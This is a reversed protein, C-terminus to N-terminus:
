THDLIWCTEFEVLGDNNPIELSCNMNCIVLDASSSQNNSKSMFSYKAQFRSIKSIWGGSRKKWTVHGLCADNISM